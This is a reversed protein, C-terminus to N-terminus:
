HIVISAIVSFQWHLIMIPVALLVAASIIAVLKDRHTHKHTPTHIYTLMIFRFVGSPLSKFSPVTCYDEVSHRLGNIKPEFPRPCLASGIVCRHQTVRGIKPCDGFGRHVAKVMAFKTCASSM